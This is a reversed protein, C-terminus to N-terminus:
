HPVSLVLNFFSTEYEHENIEKSLEWCREQTDSPSIPPAIM